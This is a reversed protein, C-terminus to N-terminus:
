FLSKQKSEHKTGTDIEEVDFGLRKAYLKMNQSKTITTKVFIENANSGTEKRRNCSDELTCYFYYLKVSVKLEAIANFVKIQNIRDGEMIITEFNDINQKVFEIIQPQIIMSLLDTGCCRKDSTYDGILCTKERSITHKFPVEKLEMPSKCYNEKVFTTKGSASQGIIIIIKYM